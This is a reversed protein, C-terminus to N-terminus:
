GNAQCCVSTKHRLYDQGRLLAAGWRASRKAKSLLNFTDVNLLKEFKTRLKHIEKHDVALEPQRQFGEIFDRLFMDRDVGSLERISYLDYLTDLVAELETASISPVQEAIGKAIADTDASISASRLAKILTDVSANPM